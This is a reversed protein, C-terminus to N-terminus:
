DMEETEDYKLDMSDFKGFKNGKAVDEHKPPPLEAVSKTNAPDLTEIPKPEAAETAQLQSIPITIYGPQQQHLVIPQSPVNNSAATAGGM